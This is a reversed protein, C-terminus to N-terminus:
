VGEEEVPLTTWGTLKLATRCQSGGAGEAARSAEAIQMCDWM